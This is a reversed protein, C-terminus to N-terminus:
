SNATKIPLQDPSIDLIHLAGAMIKAFAPAAVVAGMHFQGQGKPDRIVIAVVLRPHSVPAIGIFSSTHRNHDYGKAGAIYSTGTKGAVRYGPIAARTGTGTQVVSELMSLVEDAVNSKLVQPGTAVQDSKLFTIPIKVGHNAFIMYAQALQLATVSIGYGYALTAIVSPYWVEHPVLNGSSEGPFGSNTREGFGMNHLVQWFLQPKLSLLIKAAGINSSKELIQTLNIVGNSTDDRILYGGIRIQGPTTNIMTDKTYKGSELAFAINFSKMTSGPEFMDTMARNRYRGNEDKPLDNPDYSPCNTMALIEGTQTDLVIATGAEAHYQEVTDSLVRYALYQIRHDISLTLDHGEIPKSLLALDSIIHGLRDKLVQKTGPVGKLWNNYTFELGAEGEDDVNTLGVVHAAAAGEPYYRKYERQFFLGTINLAKIETVVAQPQRRKLYAFEHGPVFQTHKILYSVPLDLLHALTRLQTPTPKFLKPNVWISDVPVSIALPSGLRDTIMGRYAPIKVVRLIRAQSQKLLFSRDILNLYVLRSIVGCLALLLFCWVVIIRWQYNKEDYM